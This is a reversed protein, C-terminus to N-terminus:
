GERADGESSKGYSEEKREYYKQLTIAVSCRRWGCVNACFARCHDRIAREDPFSLKGGECVIGTNLTKDYFPCQPAGRYKRSM